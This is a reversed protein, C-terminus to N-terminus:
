TPPDHCWAVVLGELRDCETMYAPVAAAIKEDIALRDPAVVACEMLSSQSGSSVGTRESQPLVTQVTHPKTPASTRSSQDGCMFRCGEQSV